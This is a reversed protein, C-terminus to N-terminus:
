REGGSLESRGKNTLRWANLGQEASHTASFVADAVEKNWNKDEAECVFRQLGDGAAVLAQHMLIAQLALADLQSLYDAQERCRKLGGHTHRDPQRSSWHQGFGPLFLDGCDDCRRVAWDPLTEIQSARLTTV